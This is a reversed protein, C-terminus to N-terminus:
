ISRWLNLLETFVVTDNFTLSVQLPVSIAKVGQPGLGHCTMDLHEDNMHNLYYTAPTVGLARCIKHYLEAPTMKRSPPDDPPFYM